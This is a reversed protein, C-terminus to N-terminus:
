LQLGLRSDNGDQLRLMWLTGLMIFGKQTMDMDFYRNRTHEIDERLLHVPGRLRATGGGIVVMEVHVRLHSSTSGTDERETVRSVILVAVEGDPSEVHQVEVENEGSVDTTTAAVQIDSERRQDTGEDTIEDSKVERDRGDISEGKKAGATVTRAKAAVMGSWVELASTRRRPRSARRSRGLTIGSGLVGALKQLRPM